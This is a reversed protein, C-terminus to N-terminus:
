RENRMSDLIITAVVMPDHTSLLDVVSKYVYQHQSPLIESMIGILKKLQSKLQEHSQLYDTLQRHGKQGPQEFTSSQYTKDPKFGVTTPDFTSQIPNKLQQELARLHEPIEKYGASKKQQSSIRCEDFLGDNKIKCITTPQDQDQDIQKALHVRRDLNGNEAQKLQYNIVRKLEVLTDHETSADDLFGVENWPDCGNFRFKVLIHGEIRRISLNFLSQLNEEKYNEIISIFHQCENAIMQYLESTTASKMLEIDKEIIERPVSKYYESLTLKEQESM